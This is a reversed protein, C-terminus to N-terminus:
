LAGCNNADKNVDVECGDDILGNCNRWDTQDFSKPANYCELQCAGEVCRSIMNIPKYELCKNGCAGCHDNDRRLDTGCKYAPGDESLCTTWPATCETGICAVRPGDDESVAGDLNNPTFSPAGADSRVEGM